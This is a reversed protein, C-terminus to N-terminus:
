PSSALPLALITALSTFLPDVSLQAMALMDTEGFVKVHASILAFVIVSVTVSTLPFLVEPVAVTVIVSLM